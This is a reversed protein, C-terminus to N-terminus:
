NQQATYGTWKCIPNASEMFKVLIKGWYNLTPIKDAIAPFFESIYNVQGAPDM